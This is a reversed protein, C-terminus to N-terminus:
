SSPCILNERSERILAKALVSTSDIIISDRLNCQDIALPIETCGLVIAEAGAHELSSAVLVLDKIAKKTVPNSNGKIGYTRDYIAPHVYRTQMELSPQITEIGFRKFTNPYINSLYTGNTSLVGVRKVHPFNTTIFYAVEEILHVIKCEKPISSVITDFIAPAHATNCPIGIIEAGTRTLTTIIEAISHGPNENIEKLLFKSRDMIKSPVSLMSISLHEQDSLAGSLDYIKKLLDLGAYSGVGGVIGIMKNM